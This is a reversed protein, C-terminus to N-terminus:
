SGGNHAPIYGAKNSINQLLDREELKLEEELLLIEKQKTEIDYKMREIHQKQEDVCKQFYSGKYAM